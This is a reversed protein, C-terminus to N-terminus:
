AFSSKVDPCASGLAGDSAENAELVIGRGEVWLALQYILFAGAGQAGNTRIWAKCIQIEAVVM